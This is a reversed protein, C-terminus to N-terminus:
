RFFIMRSLVNVAGPLGALRTVRAIRDAWGAVPTQASLRPLVM